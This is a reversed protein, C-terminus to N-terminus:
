QRWASAAALLRDELAATRRSTVTVRAPNCGVAQDSENRTGSSGFVSEQEIESGRWIKWCCWNAWRRHFKRGIKGIRPFTLWEFLTFDFLTKM